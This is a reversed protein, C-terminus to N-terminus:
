HTVVHTMIQSNVAKSKQMGHDTALISCRSKVPPSHITSIAIFATTAYVFVLESFIGNLANSQRIGFGSTGTYVFLETIKFQEEPTGVSIFM